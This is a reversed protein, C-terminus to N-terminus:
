VSNIEEFITLSMTTKKSEHFEGLFGTMARKITETYYSFTSSKFEVNFNTLKEWMATMGQSILEDKYYNSYGGFWKKFVERAMKSTICGLEKELKLLIKDTKKRHPTFKHCKKHNELCAQKFIVYNDMNAILRDIGQDTMIEKKFGLPPRDALPIAKYNLLKQKNEKVQEIQSQCRHPNKPSINGLNKQDYCHFQYDKLLVLLREKNVFNAM